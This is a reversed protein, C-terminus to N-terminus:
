PVWRSIFHFGLFFSIIIACLWATSHLVSLAVVVLVVVLFHGMRDNRFWYIVHNRKYKKNSQYFCYLLVYRSVSFLKWSTKKFLQYVLLLLSSLILYYVFVKCHLKESYYVSNECHKWQNLALALLCRTKRRQISSIRSCQLTTKAMNFISHKIIALRLWVAVGFFLLNAKM